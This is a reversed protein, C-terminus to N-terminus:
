NRTRVKEIVATYRGDDAHIFQDVQWGTGELIGTMEEPSVMLYDFWPTRATKHRIRLRIQGALRGRQRNREHYALHLPDDTRYIDFSEALVRAGDCTLSHFRHRLLWRARTPNAFLGFNNGLMLITDFQGLKSSIGTIPLVQTRKLGRERCIQIAKPSLDIGLADCGQAQLYLGHRGAGCGIDLVRRGVYGMTEQHNPPWDAYEAFYLTTPAAQIFGDDREVIEYTTKGGFADAIVQGYADEAESLRSM